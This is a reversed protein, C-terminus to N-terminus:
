PESVADPVPEPDARHEAAFPGYIGLTRIAAPPERYRDVFTPHVAISHRVEQYGSGVEPIVDAERSARHLEETRLLVNLPPQILTAMFPPLQQTQLLDPPQGVGPIPVLEQGIPPSVRQLLGLGYERGKAQGAVEPPQPGCGSDM